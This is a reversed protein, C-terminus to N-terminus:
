KYTNKMLLFIHKEEPNNAIEAFVVKLADRLVESKPKGRYTAVAQLMSKQVPDIRFFEIQSKKM